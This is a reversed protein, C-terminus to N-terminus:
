RRLATLAHGLMLCLSKTSALGALNPRLAMLGCTALALLLLVKSVLFERGSRFWFSGVSEKRSLIHIWQLHLAVWILALTAAVIQDFTM